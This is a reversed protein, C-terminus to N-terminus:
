HTIAKCAAVKQDTACKKSATESRL